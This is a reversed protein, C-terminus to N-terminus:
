SNMPSAFLEHARRATQSSIRAEQKRDSQRKPLTLVFRTWRDRTDLELRGAHGKVLGKSISLGLGPGHGVDKTTFFPEMLKDRIAASIGPGSDTVTIEVQEGRQAVDISVFRDEDGSPTGELADYANNLLNMLVQSIQVPRCELVLDDPFERLKLEIGAGRFRESCLDLTDQIIASVRVSEFKAEREMNAFARLGKVIKSIRLATTEIKAMHRSVEALTLDGYEARDRVEGARGFIVSVPNNIEHAIAGAMQGLASMRSAYLLAQQQEDILARMRVETSIDRKVVVWCQKGDINLSTLAADVKITSGDRRRCEMEGRWAGGRAIDDRSHPFVDGSIMGEMEGFMYGLMAEAAPNAYLIRGDADLVQVGETMQALAETQLQARSRILFAEEDSLRKGEEVGIATTLMGLTRRDRETAQYPRAFSLSLLGVISGRCVVPRVHCVLGSKELVACAAHSLADSESFASLRKAIAEWAELEPLEGFAPENGPHWSAGLSLHFSDIRREVRVYFVREACFVEGAADVLRGLNEHSDPGLSLLRNAVRELQDIAADQGPVPELSVLAHGLGCSAVDIRMRYYEGRINLITCFDGRQVITKLVVRMIESPLGGHFVEHFSGLWTVDQLGSVM